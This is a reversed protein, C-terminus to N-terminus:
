NGKFYIANIVFLIDLPDIRDIITPIRNRTSAKVWANITDKASPLAFDLERAEADFSQKVAAFFAPEFSTGKRAWSSNAISVEVSEDLRLLLDILGRYSANIQEQSLDGFRLANRMQTFTNGAAGNLTMGLSMSASLPSLFVNDRTETARVQKLLDFSFANSAEIVRQESVTLQRPLSTIPKPPGSPDGCAAVVLSFTLMLRASKM